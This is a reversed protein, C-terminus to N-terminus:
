FSSSLENACISRASTRFPVVIGTPRFPLAKIAEDSLKLTIAIVFAVLFHVGFIKQKRKSTGIGELVGSLDFVTPLFLKFEESLVFPNMIEEKVGM